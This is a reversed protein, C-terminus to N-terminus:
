RASTGRGAERAVGTWPSARVYPSARVHSYRVQRIHAIRLNSAARSARLDEQARKLQGRVTGGELVAATYRRHLETNAQVNDKDRSRFARIRAMELLIEKVIKRHKQHEDLVCHLSREVQRQRANADHM